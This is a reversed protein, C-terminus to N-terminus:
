FDRTSNIVNVAEFLTLARFPFKVQYYSFYFDPIFDFQDSLVPVRLFELIELTKPEDLISKIGASVVKM